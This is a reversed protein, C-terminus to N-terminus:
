IEICSLKSSIKEDTRDKPIIFGFVCTTDRKSEAYIKGEHDDIIKKSLYLGLGTSTKQRGFEMTKYKKFMEGIEKKTYYKGKNEVEFNINQREESLRIYIESNKQGYTISNAILNIIVRKIHLKDACLIESNLNSLVIIKQRNEDALYSIENVVDEVLKKINFKEFILKTEGSEYLCTDLITFILRNMYKCSNKIQSIIEKQKSTLNGFTKNLLLDVARIQAINPTKLDHILSAFFTNKKEEISNKKM